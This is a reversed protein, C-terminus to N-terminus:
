SKRLGKTNRQGPLFEVWAAEKGSSERQQVYEQAITEVIMVIKVDGLRSM